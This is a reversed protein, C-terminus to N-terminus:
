KQWKIDEIKKILHTCGYSVLVLQPSNFRRKEFCLWKNCSTFLWLLGKIILCVHKEALTCSKYTQGWPRPPSAAILLPMRLFISQMLGCPRPPSAAILLLPMRLFLSQMLGWPRPPYAAILLLPMSLFMSQLLVPFLFKKLINRCQTKKYGVCGRCYSSM